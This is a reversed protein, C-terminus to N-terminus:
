GELIADIRQIMTMPLHWRFTTVLEALIENRQDLAEQYWAILAESGDYSLTRGGCHKCTTGVLDM